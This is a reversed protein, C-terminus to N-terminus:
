RLRDWGGVRLSEGRGVGLLLLLLLDSERDGPYGNGGVVAVGDDFGRGLGDLATEAPLLVADQRRHVAGIALEVHAAELSRHPPSAVRGDRLQPASLHLTLAVTSRLKWTRKVTHEATGYQAPGAKLTRQKTPFKFPIPFTHVICCSM